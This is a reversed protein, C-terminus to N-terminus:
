MCHFEICGNFHFFARLKLYSINNPSCQLSFLVLYFFVRLYVVTYIPFLELFLM